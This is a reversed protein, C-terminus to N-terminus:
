SFMKFWKFWPCDMEQLLDLSSSLAVFQSQVASYTTCHKACTQAHNTKGLSHHIRWVVASKGGKNTSTNELFVFEWWPLIEGRPAKALPISAQGEMVELLDEVSACQSVPVVRVLNHPDLADGCPIVTSSRRDFISSFRDYRLFKKVCHEVIEDITPRDNDDFVLVANIIAEDFGTEPPFTGHAMSESMCSWRRKAKDDKKRGVIAIVAALAVSTLLTPSNIVTSLM